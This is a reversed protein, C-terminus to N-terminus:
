IVTTKQVTALSRFVGALQRDLKLRHKIYLHISETACLQLSRVRLLRAAIKFEAFLKGDIWIATDFAQSSFDNARGKMGAQLRPPLEEYLARLGAAPLEIGLETYLAGLRGAVAREAISKNTQRDAPDLSLCSDAYLALEEVQLRPIWLASRKADTM